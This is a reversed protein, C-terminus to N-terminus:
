LKWYLLIFTIIGVAFKIFFVVRLSDPALDLGGYYDIVYALFLPSFLGVAASLTRMFAMAPVRDENRYSSINIINMIPMTIRGM